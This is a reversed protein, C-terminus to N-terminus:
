PHGFHTFGQGQTAKKAALDIAFGEETRPPAIGTRLGGPSADRVGNM